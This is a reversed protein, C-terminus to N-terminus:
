DPLGMLRIPGMLGSLIPTIQNIDQPDFREGFKEVLSRYDYNPFGHGALYNVATNAVDIRLDNNGVKLFKTVDLQYPPCWVSGARRGNVWVVAAERVPAILNTAYSQRLRIPPAASTQGLSLSWREDGGLMEDTVNFHDTYTAVGSFNRTASDETWSHLTNMAIPTADAGFQVNWGSNLDVVIPTAQPRVPPPNSVRNSIMLITSAYPELKVAIVVGGELHGLIRAPTIRGSMPDLWDASVGEFRFTATVDKPENGTNALFYIEGNDTHRHVVGIEPAPPSFRVDPRLRKSLADALESEYPVFIGPADPDQFLHRVIEHAAQQDADTALYGPVHSPLRRTAVLIGGNDAFEQLKQLTSLPMREVGALVVVRYRLEGFSLTGREVKGRLDLLGDDFFDLNYGADLIDGVISNGLCRGVGDSLSVHGPTFNAWVDSNSLYLAIDNAPSGQRLIYSVRQLYKNLDPMVIWWPNKDDFVGSAYFSWGPFPVGEATYPWGHFILQNDGQLFFLDSGAKIDLPTARFAPSHVWTLTESSAVPLGMLHCASAAYRAERFGHWQYGEGEPLDIDAYSYEGSSPTGYFQARFRTNHEAAFSRMQKAFYDNFLETLTKGWDHRIDLTKPGIDGVLAPLLPRLDYGRRKQFEDLFNQTWDEGYSELSDCFIAYPTNPACAAVEKEAITQIFKQVAQPDQHDVVYGEAGFAPRKDKMGTRSSFFFLVESKNTLEAPIQAANDRVPIERMSSFDVAGSATSAAFAGLFTEAAADMPPVAVSSQGVWQARVVRLRGAANTIPITAGGYPWGSGMTLDFRLGLEKAKAAVFNLMELFEPSMFKLNVLGPITGDLALPYTPQVEIGGFGGQKMVNMEHELGTKTVAPGFWWWRVM